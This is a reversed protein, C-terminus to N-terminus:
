DSLARGSAHETGIGLRGSSLHRNILEEQEVRQRETTADVRDFVPKL